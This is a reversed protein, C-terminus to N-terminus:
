ARRRTLRAQFNKPQLVAQATVRINQDPLPEIHWRACITAVAITSETMSFTDGICKRAGSGFAAFANRPPKHPQQNEWRDPDFSEPNPYIDPRHHILYPSLLVITGQPISHRGLHTDTTTRRSTIWVPPYLRMAETIVRATFPLRTQDDYGAAQGNPLVHDVEDHLRKSAQPSRALLYLSWAPANALTETGALLFNLIVKALEDNSLHQANGESLTPNDQISMIISLLDGSGADRARYSRVIHAATADLRKRAQQYRHDSLLALRALQPPIVTRVYAGALIHKVDSILDAQAEPSLTNDTFLTGTLCRAALTTMEDLVTIAQGESWSDVLRGVEHAMASAYRPYNQPTFAPQLLRRFRRHQNHPCTLLSNGMIDRARDYLPGGKDFTRDDAFVQHSLEPDCVLVPKLPGIRIRVLDSYGTLSNLFRLPDRLLSVSHGILPLAGPATTLATHTEIRM